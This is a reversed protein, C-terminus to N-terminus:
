HAPFAKNWDYSSVIQHIQQTILRKVYKIDQHDGFDKINGMNYTHDGVNLHLSSGFFEPYGSLPATGLRSHDYYIRISNTSSGKPVIKIWPVKSKIQEEIFPDDVDLYFTNKDPPPALIRTLVILTDAKTTSIINLVDTKQSFLYKKSYIRFQLKRPASNPLLFSFHSDDTDRSGTISQNHEDIRDIKEIAKMDKFFGGSSDRLKITFFADSSPQGGGFFLQLVYILTFLTGGFLALVIKGRNAAPLDQVVFLFLAIFVLLICGVYVILKQPGDLNALFKLWYISIIAVVFAVVQTPTKIKLITSWINRPENNEENSNNSASTNEEMPTHDAQNSFDDNEPDKM